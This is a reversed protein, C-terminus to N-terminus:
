GHVAGGLAKLMENMYQINNRVGNWYTVDSASLVGASQLYQLGLEPTVARARGSASKLTAKVILSDLKDVTGGNCLNSWYVPSNIIGLSELKYLAVTASPYIKQGVKILNVNTIGNLEALKNVTTGYKKAIKSLTDGRVVTYPESDVSTTTTTTTGSNTSSTTSSTSSTCLSAYKPTAFGRIYRGNVALNRYGVANSMNGEIVKITSGTVSVVLGVHDAAGTCDGSGNDDWDYFIVDAMQPVFADNEVWVGLNTFGTIMKGCGCEPAFVSLVDAKIAVATVFTACWADTYKVKYGRPLSSQTNYLDIIQKHSGDSEKCGLWGKATDVVKQRLQSETM